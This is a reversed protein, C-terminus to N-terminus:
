HGRRPGSIPDSSRLSLPVTEITRESRESVDGQPALENEALIV